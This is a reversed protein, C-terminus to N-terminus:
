TTLASLVTFTRLSLTPALSPSFLTIRSPRAVPSRRTSSPVSRRRSPELTSTTSSLECTGVVGPWCRCPWSVLPEACVPSACGPLAAPLAPAHVERTQEDQPRDGGRQAHQG